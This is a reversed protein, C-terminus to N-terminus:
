VTRTQKFGEFLLEASRSLAQRKRSLRSGLRCRSSQRWFVAKVGFFFLSFFYALGPSPFECIVSTLDVVNACVCFFSGAACSFCFDTIHCILRCFLVKGSLEFVSEIGYVSNKSKAFRIGM